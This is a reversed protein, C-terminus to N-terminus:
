ASAIAAKLEVILEIGEVLGKERLAVSLPL